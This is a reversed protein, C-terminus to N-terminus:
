LFYPHLSCSHSLSINHVSQPPYSLSSFQSMWCHTDSLQLHVAISLSHSLHGTLSDKDQKVLRVIGFMATTLQLSVSLQIHLRIIFCHNISSYHLVHVICTLWYCTVIVMWTLWYCTVIVMRHMDALLMYCHGGMDALLM